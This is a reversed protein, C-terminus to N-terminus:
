RPIRPIRLISSRLKLTYTEGKIVKLSDEVFRQQILEKAVRIDQSIRPRILWITEEDSRTINDLMDAYDKGVGEKDAYCETVKYLTQYSRYRRVVENMDPAYDEGIVRLVGDTQQAVACLFADLGLRPWGIGAKGGGAYRTKDRSDEYLTVDKTKSRLEEFMLNGKGM